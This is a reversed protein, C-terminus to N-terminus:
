NKRMRSLYVVKGNQIKSDPEFCYGREEFFLKNEFFLQRMDVSINCDEANRLSEFIEKRQAKICDEKAERIKKWFKKGLEGEGGLKLWAYYRVQGKEVKTHPEFIFGQQEFYQRNAIFMKEMDVMVSPKDFVGNKRINETARELEKKLEQEIAHRQGMMEKCM